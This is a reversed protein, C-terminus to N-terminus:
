KPLILKGETKVTFGGFPMGKHDQLLVQGSGKYEYTGTAGAFRGLGGVFNGKLEMTFAGTAPNLCFLAGAADDRLLLQGEQMQTARTSASVLIPVKVQGAPCAPNPETALFDYEVLFAGHVPGINSLGSFTVHHAYVGDGNHDFSSPAAAGSISDRYNREQAQVGSCVVLALAVIKLDLKM